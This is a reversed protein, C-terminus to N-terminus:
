PNLVFGKEYSKEKISSCKGETRLKSNTTKICIKSAGLM